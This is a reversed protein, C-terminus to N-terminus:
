ELLNKEILKKVFLASVLAAFEKGKDSKSGDANDMVGKVLIAKTNTNSLKVARALGYGEMEVAVTKRDIDTIFEEFYGKKDIVLPSCATPEIHFNLNQNAFEKFKETYLETTRLLQEIDPIIGKFIGSENTRIESKINEISQTDVPEQINDKEIGRDTLKGTFLLEIKKSVVIDGLSTNSKGGCVGPMIVYKPNYDNIIKTTLIAADVMGMEAQSVAIIKKNNSSFKYGSFQGISIKHQENTLSFVEKIKEMEDFYLATIIVIDIRENHIKPDIQKETHADSPNNIAGSFDFHNWNWNSSSDNYLYCIKIGRYESSTAKRTICQLKLLPYKDKIGNVISYGKSTEVSSGDFNLHIWLRFPIYKFSKEYLRKFTRLNDVFVPNFKDYVEDNSILNSIFDDKCNIFIDIAEM